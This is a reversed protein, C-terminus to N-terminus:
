PGHGIVDAVAKPELVQDAPFDPFAARMMNTEVAGPAVAYVRIGLPKGEKAVARSFLNVWAKSAGYVAFGPFPDQSALSSINVIVGGGRAKMVGWVAQTTHFIAAMNIQYTQDFAAADLEATAMLPAVGANNVLVDIRGLESVVQKVVAEISEGDTVDGPAVLATGGAARVEQAVEELEEKGPEIDNLAVPGNAALRLAIVRGIGRRAGTILAVPKAAAEETM